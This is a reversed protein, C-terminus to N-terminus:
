FEWFISYQHSFRMTLRLSVEQSFADVDVCM